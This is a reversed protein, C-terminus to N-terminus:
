NRYLKSSSNYWMTLAFLVLARAHYISTTCQTKCILFMCVNCGSYTISSLMGLQLTVSESVAYGFANTVRCRYEGEHAEIMPDITLCYKNEKVLTQNKHMWVYKFPGKGTAECTLKVRGGPVVKGHKKPPIKIV